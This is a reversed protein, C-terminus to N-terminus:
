LVPHSNLQALARQAEVFNPKLKLARQLETRAQANQHEAALIAGLHYRLPAEWARRESDLVQQVGQWPFDIGLPPPAHVAQESLRVASALLKPADAPPHPLTALRYQVWALSDQIGADDPELRWSRLLLRYAKGLQVGQDALPYGLANYLNALGDADPELALARYFTDEARANEGAEQYYTVLLTLRGLNPDRDVVRAMFIAAQAWLEKDALAASIDESPEINDPDARVARYFLDLAAATQGQDLARMGAQALPDGPVPACGAGGLLILACGAWALARPLPM